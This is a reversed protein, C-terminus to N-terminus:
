KGFLGRKRFPVFDRYSIVDGNLIRCANNHLYEWCDSGYRKKIIKEAKDMCPPRSTLNHMDTGIVHVMGMGFLTDIDKKYERMMLSPANIQVLVDLDHLANRHQVSQHMNRENHAIIPKIGKLTLKYVNEVVDDTWMGMPMELLMYDTDGILLERINPFRSIDGTLHVECGYKYLKPTNEPLDEFNKLASNRKEIFKDVDHSSSPYCHPTFVVAGVGADHSKRLMALSMEMDKAGDDIKNIVHSHFDVVM